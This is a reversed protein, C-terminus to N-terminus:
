NLPVHVFIVQKHMTLQVSRSYDNHLIRTSFWYWRQTQHFRCCKLHTVGWTPFTFYERLNVPDVSILNTFSRWSTHVYACTREDYSSLSVENCRLLQFQTESHHKTQAFFTQSSMHTLSLRSFIQVSYSLNRFCLICILICVVIHRLQFQHAILTRQAFYIHTHLASIVFIYFDHLYTFFGFFVNGVLLWLLCLLLLFFVLFLLLLLRRRFLWLFAVFLLGILLNVLWTVVALNLVSSRNWSSFVILYLFHLLFIGVLIIVFSLHLQSQKSAFLLHLSKIDLQMRFM